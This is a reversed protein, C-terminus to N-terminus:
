GHHLAGKIEANNYADFWFWKGEPAEINHVEKLHVELAQICGWLPPEYRCLACSYKHSYDVRLATTIVHTDKFEDSIPKM